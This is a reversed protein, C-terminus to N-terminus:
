CFFDGYRFLEPISLAIEEDYLLEFTFEDGPMLMAPSDESPLQCCMGQRKERYVPSTITLSFCKEACDEKLIVGYNGFRNRQPFLLCCSRKAARDFWGVAPFTLDGTTQTITGGGEAAWRPINTIHIGPHGNGRALQISIHRKRGTTRYEARFVAGDFQWEQCTEGPQLTIEGQASTGKEPNVRLLSLTITNLM